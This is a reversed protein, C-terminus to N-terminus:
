VCATRDTPFKIMLERKALMLNTIVDLKAIVYPEDKVLEALAKYEPDFIKCHDCWPAFFNVLVILNDKITDDFTTDTLPLPDNACFCFSQLTILFIISVRFNM